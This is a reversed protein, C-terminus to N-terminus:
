LRAPFAASSWAEFEWVEGFAMDKRAVDGRYGITCPGAARCRITGRTLHGDRWALDVEFGGRARLGQVSGTPWAAPLAPLLTLADEHSQLLMEAIGAVAGFNGDIQFPPHACFLNPYVGAGYRGPESGRLAAPFILNGLLAAARDGDGLRAWFCIKWAMSWGTGEDGRAELTRRAAQALQPTARPTIERGPHLGFLHSVHRHHPETEQFEEAWEMLRGDAGVKPRALRLRGARVSRVLDDDVGLAEAAEVVNTFHDWLIQQDMSPGMSISCRRGDPAIFTNEPSTAPGSVLQGTKPDEVVWDLCFQACERLIPFFGRLEDVDRSFAYREWLHQCLWAGALPSLGWSPDEGPSTYGWVNHVTHVVWGRAGYHVAATVRGPDRMRDVLDILPTACEALHATEALWYNMQVNINTHYDGNWPTQIGDAWIGQLNAPLEGPRSSAILLYRGYHFYLAVLARDDSGAAVRDLREDTPLHSVTDVGLDLRTRRFLRRHDDLHQERLRDYSVASAAALRERSVEEFKAIRYDTAATLLLTAADAGEVRVGRDDVSVSGGDALVLLRAAFRMGGVFGHFLQGMMVLGSPGDAHTTARESRVLGTTFSVGGRGDSAFRTVLARDPASAFTERTVRRGGARFTVRAIGEDLNLERRYDTITAQADDIFEITLDGLTQFCGFAARRASGEESGLGKCVQTRRALEGAEAHRGAFLLERIRPLAELAEPNDADQPGGSWLSKDNIQIREFGVGGFVMAGLQGNGVPLAEEWVEAPRRYWLITSAEDRVTREQTSDRDM